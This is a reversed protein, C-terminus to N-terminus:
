NAAEDYASSLPSNPPSGQKRRELGPGSTAWKGAAQLPCPADPLGIRDHPLQAPGTLILSSLLLVLM